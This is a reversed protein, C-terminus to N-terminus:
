PAAAAAGNSRARKPTSSAAAPRTPTRSLSPTPSASSVTAAASAARRAASSRTRGSTVPRQRPQRRHRQERGAENIPQRNTGQRNDSRTTWTATRVDITALVMRRTDKLLANRAPRSRRPGSLWQRDSRRRSRRNPIWWADRRCDEALYDLGNTSQTSANDSGASARIRRAITRAPGHHSTSDGGSGTLPAPGDARRPRRREHIQALIPEPSEKVLLPAPLAGHASLVLSRTTLTTTPTFCSPASAARWRRRRSSTPPSPCTTSGSPLRALSRSQRRTTAANYAKITARKITTM